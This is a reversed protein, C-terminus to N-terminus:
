AALTCLGLGETNTLWELDCKGSPALGGYVLILVFLLWGNNGSGFVVLFHGYLFILLKFSFFSVLNLFSCIGFILRKRIM